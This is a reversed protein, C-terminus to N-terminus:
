SNDASKSRMPRLQIATRSSMPSGGWLLAFGHTRALGGLEGCISQFIETEGREPVLMGLVRASKDVVEGSKVFSGSGARREILGDNQLDRLARAITPRSVDFREVLQAESPLKITKAFVGSAIEARLARSIKTHKSM